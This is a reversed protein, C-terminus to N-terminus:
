PLLVSLWLSPDPSLLPAIARLATLAAAGAIANIATFSIATPLLAIWTKDDITVVGFDDEM